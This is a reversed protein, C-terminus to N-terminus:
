RYLHLSHMLELGVWPLMSLNIYVWAGYVESGKWDFGGAWHGVLMPWSIHCWGWVIWENKQSFGEFICTERSDLKRIAEWKVMFHPPMEWSGQFAVWDYPNRNNWGLDGMSKRPGWLEMRWSMPIGLPGWGWVGVKVGGGVFLRGTIFPKNNVMIIGSSFDRSLNM